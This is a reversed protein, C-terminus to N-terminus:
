APEQRISQKAVATQNAGQTMQEQMVIRARKAKRQQGPRMGPEFKRFKLEPHDQIEGEELESDLSYRPPLQPGTSTVQFHEPLDGRRPESSSDAYEASIETATKSHCSVLATKFEKCAEDSPELISRNRKFGSTKNNTQQLRALFSQLNSQLNFQLFDTQLVALYVEQARNLKIRPAQHNEKLLKITANEANEIQVLFDHQVHALVKAIDEDQRKQLNRCRKLLWKIMKSDISNAKLEERVLDPAQSRDDCLKFTKEIKEVDNFKVNVSNRAATLPKETPKRPNQEVDPHIICPVCRRCILGSPNSTPITANLSTVCSMHYAGSCEICFALPESIRSVIDKKYLRHCIQCCGKSPTRFARLCSCRTEFIYKQIIEFSKRVSQRFELSSTETLVRIAIFTRPIECQQCAIYICCAVLVAPLENMTEDLHLCNFDATAQSLMKWLYKARDAVNEPLNGAQCDKEIKRCGKIDSLRYTNQTTDLETNINEVNSERQSFDPRMNPPTPPPVMIYNDQVDSSTQEDLPNENTKVKPGDYNGPTPAYWQDLYDSRIPSLPKGRNKDHQVDSSKSEKPQNEARGMYEDTHAGPTPVTSYWNEQADVGYPVNFTDEINEPICGAHSPEDFLSEMYQTYDFPPPTLAHLTRQSSAEPSSSTKTVPVDIMHVAMIREHQFHAPSPEKVPFEAGCIGKNEALMPKLSRRSAGATRWITSEISKLDCNTTSPTHNFAGAKPHVMTVM